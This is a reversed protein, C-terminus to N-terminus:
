GTAPDPGPGLIRDALWAGARVQGPIWFEVLTGEGPGGAVRLWGGATEARERMATLGLHGEPSEGQPLHEFGGGDDAVRVLYGGDREELRAEVRSARAHRHANTLAERAIRYIVIGTEPGPEAALRSQMSYAPASGSGALGRVHAHLAAVLGERDLTPPRLEFTLHRLSEISGQVTQMLTPLEAEDRLEPHRRVLLDLRMAVAAMKQITDDHLDAALRHREQEEARVLAARLRQREQDALRRETLDRVVAQTLIGRPTRIPSLSIEVPFSTADKRRAVLELGAGMPRVPPRGLYGERHHAHVRRLAAPLLIEVPEGLLQQREYGFLAEAQANVAVIRGDPAVLLMADPASEVM